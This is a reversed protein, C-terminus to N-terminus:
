DLDIVAGCKILPDSDDDEDTIRINILVITMNKKKDIISQETVQIGIKKMVDVAMNIGWGEMFGWARALYEEGEKKEFIAADGKNNIKNESFSLIDAVLLSQMLEDGDISYSFFKKSYEKLFLMKYEHNYGVFKETLMELNNKKLLPECESRIVRLNHVQIFYGVMLFFVFGVGLAMFFYSTYAFAAWVAGSLILVLFFHKRVVKILLYVLGLLLITGIILHM